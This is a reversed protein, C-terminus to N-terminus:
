EQLDIIAEREAGVSVLDIRTGLEEQIYDIYNRAEIALESVKRAGGHGHGKWGPFSKWIPKLNGVLEIDSPIVDYRKDDHEYAVCIFVEDFNDLVDLKTLALGSVGGIKCVQRMQVIDFWGCRRERGTVTGYENGASLLIEGDRTGSIESVMPGGGVRTTYSKAVGLIYHGGFNYLGSGTFMQGAFTNSSTVYPYTGHDVDLMAGQAGEFIFSKNLKKYESLLEWVSVIYPGLEDSVEQLGELVDDADIEVQGNDRRLANHHRILSDMRGSSKLKDLSLLDGLRLARRGVKDEYAPGIGRGTTGIKGENTARVERAKDLDVHVPLIITARDSMKLNEPGINFGQERVSKMEEVLSFLDVVVGNGLINVCGDRIVGSPLMNLKITRGDVVITHGANHGGQFRVVVDRNYTMWDVLKGKGEDGWQCGLVTVADSGEMSLGRGYDKNMRQMM